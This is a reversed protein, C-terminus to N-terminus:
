REVDIGSLTITGHAKVEIRLEGGAPVTGDLALTGDGYMSESECSGNVCAEITGFGSDVGPQYRVLVRVSGPALGNLVAEASGSSTWIYDGYGSKLWEGSRRVEDYSLHVTDGPGSDPPTPQESSEQLMPEKPLDAARRVLETYFGLTEREDDSLEAIAAGFADRRILTALDPSAYAAIRKGDVSLEAQCWPGLQACANALFPLQIGDSFPSDARQEAGLWEQFRGRDFSLFMGGTVYPSGDASEQGDPGVRVERFALLYHSPVEQNILTNGSRAEALAPGLTLRGVGYAAGLAAIGLAGYLAIRRGTDM